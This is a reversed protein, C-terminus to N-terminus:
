MLDAETTVLVEDVAFSTPTSVFISTVLMSALLTSLFRSKKANVTKM